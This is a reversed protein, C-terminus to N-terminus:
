SPIFGKGLLLRYHNSAYFDLDETFIRFEDYQQDLTFTLVGSSSSEFSLNYRTNISIDITPELDVFITYSCASVCTVSIYM